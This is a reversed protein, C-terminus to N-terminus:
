LDVKPIINRWRHPKLITGHDYWSQYRTACAGCEAPNKRQLVKYGLYAYFFDCDREFGFLRIAEDISGYRRYDPFWTELFVRLDHTLPCRLESPDVTWLGFSFGDSCALIQLFLRLKYIYDGVCCDEVLYTLVDFHSCNCSKSILDVKKGLPTVITEKTNIIPIEYTMVYCENWLRDFLNAIKWNEIGGTRRRQNSGLSLEVFGRQVFWDWPSDGLMKRFCSVREIINEGDRILLTAYMAIEKDKVDNYYSPLLTMAMVPFDGRDKYKQALEILWERHWKSTDLFYEAINNKRIIATEALRLEREKNKSKRM